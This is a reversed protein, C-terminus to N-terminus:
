LNIDIEHVLSFKIVKITCSNPRSNINIARTPNFIWSPPPIDILREVFLSSCSFANNYVRYEQLFVATSLEAVDRREPYQPSRPPATTVSNWHTCYYNYSYLNRRRSTFALWCMERVWDTACEQEGSVSVTRRAGLPSSSAVAAVGMKRPILIQTSNDTHSTSRIMQDARATWNLLFTMKLRVERVEIFNNIM